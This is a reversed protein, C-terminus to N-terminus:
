TRRDGRKAKPIPSGQRSDLGVRPSKRQQRGAKRPLCSVGQFLCLTTHIFYIKAPWASVLRRESLNGSCRRVRASASFPIVFSGAYADNLSSCRPDSTGQFNASKTTRSVSMMVTGNESIRLAFTTAVTISPLGTYPLSYGCLINLVITFIFKVLICHHM